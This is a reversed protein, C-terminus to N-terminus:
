DEVPMPSRTDVPEKLSDIPAITPEVEQDILISVFVVSFLLAFFM